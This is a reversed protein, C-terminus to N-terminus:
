SESLSIMHTTNVVCYSGYDVVRSFHTLITEQIQVVPCFRGLMRMPTASLDRFLAPTDSVTCRIPPAGEVRIPRPSIALFPTNPFPLPRYNAIYYTSSSQKFNINSHFPGRDDTPINMKRNM